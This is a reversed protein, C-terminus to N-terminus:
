IGKFVGTLLCREGSNSIGTMKDFCCRMDCLSVKLEEDEQRWDAEKLSYYFYHPVCMFLIHPSEWTGMM